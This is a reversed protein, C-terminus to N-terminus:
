KKFRLAQWLFAIVLVMPFIPSIIGNVLAHSVFAGLPLLFGVVALAMAVMRLTRRNPRSNKM